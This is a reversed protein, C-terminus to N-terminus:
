GTWIALAPAPGGTLLNLCRGDPASVADIGWGSRRSLIATTVPDDDAIAQRM